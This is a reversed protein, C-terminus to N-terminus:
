HCAYLQGAITSGSSGEELVVHTASKRAATQRLDAEAEASSDSSATVSGLELCGDPASDVISISDAEANEAGKNRGCGAFAVSVVCVQVLLTRM